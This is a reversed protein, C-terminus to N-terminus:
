IGLVRGRVPLRLCARQVPEVHGAMGGLEPGRGAPRAAPRPVLRRHQPHVRAHGGATLDADVVVGHQGLDDRPRVVALLGGRHQRVGSAAARIWPRIVLRSRSTRTSRCGAKRRPGSRCRTRRCARRQAREGRRQGSRLGGRSDASAAASASAAARWRARWPARRAAARSASRGTAAAACWTRPARRRTVPEVPGPQGGLAAVVDPQHRQRRVPHHQVHGAIRCANWTAARRLPGAPAPRRPSRRPGTRQEGLRPEGVGRRLDAGPRQERRHRAGHDPERGRDAIPDAAPWGSSHSSAM